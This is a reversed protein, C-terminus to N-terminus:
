LRYSSCDLSYCPAPHHSPHTVPRRIPLAPYAFKGEPAPSASDQSSPPPTPSRSEQQCSPQQQKTPAEYVENKQAPAEPPCPRAQTPWGGADQEEGRGRDKLSKEPHEIKAPTKLPKDVETHEELPTSSISSSDVYKQSNKPRSNVKVDRLETNIGEQVHRNERHQTQASGQREQVERGCGLTPQSCGDSHCVENRGRGEFELTERMDGKVTHSRIDSFSSRQAAEAQKNRPGRGGMTMSRWRVDSPAASRKAGSKRSDDRRSASSRTQEDGRSEASSTSASSTSRKLQKFIKKMPSRTKVSDKDMFSDRSGKLSDRENKKSDKGKKGKFSSKSKVSGTVSSKSKASDKSKISSRSWVSDTDIEEDQPDNYEEDINELEGSGVSSGVSAEDM